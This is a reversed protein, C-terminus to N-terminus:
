KGAEPPGTHSRKRLTVTSSETLCRSIIEPDPYDGLSTLPNHLSDDRSVLALAQGAHM